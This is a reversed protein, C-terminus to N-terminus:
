EREKRKAEQWLSVKEEMSLQPLTRGMHAACEEVYTFRRYFKQNAKALADDANVGFFSGWKVIAFILDGYEEIIADGPTEKRPETTEQKQEELAKQLEDYEERVKNLAMDSTPFDFGLGAAKEQMRISKVLSPLSAPVGELASHRGEKMKVQEWKPEEHATAPQLIGERNPLSIHPHRSILKKCVSNIVDCLSFQQKDEAIKSYFLVHMLLDGLEKCMEPYNSTLIADSLEYAEELTLYRLSDITQGRDWPCKQRLIDLINSLWRLSNEEENHMDRMREYYSM